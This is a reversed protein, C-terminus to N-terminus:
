LVLWNSPLDEFFEEGENDKHTTRTATLYGFKELIHFTLLTFMSFGYESDEMNAEQTNHADCVVRVVQYNPTWQYRSSINVAM